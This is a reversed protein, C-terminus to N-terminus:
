YAESSTLTVYSNATEDLTYVGDTTDISGKPYVTVKIAVRRVSEEEDNLGKISSNCIIQDTTLNTRIFSVADLDNVMTLIYDEPVSDVVQDDDTDETYQAALILEPQIYYSVNVNNDMIITDNYKPTYVLYIKDVSTLAVSAFDQAQYTTNSKGSQSNEYLGPIGTSDTSVKGNASTKTYIADCTYSCSIIVEYGEDGVANISITITRQMKEKILAAISEDVAINNKNCYTQYIQQYYTLADNYQSGEVAFVDLTTDVNYIQSLGVSNSDTGSLTVVVDYAEGTDAAPGYYVLSDDETMTSTGEPYSVLTYGKEELYSSSFHSSFTTEDFTLEVLTDLSKFNEMIEQALLTSEQSKATEASYGMSQTFFSMLPVSVLAILTMSLIVEILSFGKNLQLFAKKNTM